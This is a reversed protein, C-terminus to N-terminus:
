PHARALYGVLQSGAPALPIRFFIRDADPDRLDRERRFAHERRDLCRPSGWRSGASTCGARFAPPCRANRPPAASNNTSAPSRSRGSLNVKSRSGASGEVSMPLPLVLGGRDAAPPISLFRFNTSERSSPFPNSSGTRPHSSDPKREKQTASSQERESRLRM